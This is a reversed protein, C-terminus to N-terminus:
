VSIYEPVVRCEPNWAESNTGIELLMLPPHCRLVRDHRERVQKDRTPEVAQVRPEAGVSPSRM